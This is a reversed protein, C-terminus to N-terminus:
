KGEEMWTAYAFSRGDFQYCCPFMESQESSWAAFGDGLWKRGVYLVRPLWGSGITVRSGDQPGGVLEIGHIIDLVFVSESM